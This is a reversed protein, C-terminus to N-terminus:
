SEYVPVHSFLAVKEADVKSNAPFSVSGGHQRDYTVSARLRTIFRQYHVSDEHRDNYFADAEARIAELLTGAHVPDAQVTLLAAADLLDSAHLNDFPVSRYTASITSDDDMTPWISFYSQGVAGPGAPIISFMCPHGTQFNAVYRLQIEHAMVNRLPRGVTGHNYIVGGTFDGFDAPLDFKWQHLEYATGATVAITNNNVTLGTGSARATVFLTHGDVRLVGNAAWVPFNTGVGTVTGGGIAITGTSYADNSSAFFPKELFRWQHVLGDLPPPSYFLRLADRIIQRCDTLTQSDFQSADRNIGLVSGISSLIEDNRLSLSQSM